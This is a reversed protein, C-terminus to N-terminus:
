ETKKGQTPIQLKVVDKQSLYSDPSGTDIVFSTIQKRIRLSSCEIVATLVLRGEIIQLPIRCKM